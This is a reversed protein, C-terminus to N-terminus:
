WIFYLPSLCSMVRCVSKWHTFDLCLSALYRAKLWVALSPYAPNWASVAVAMLRVM